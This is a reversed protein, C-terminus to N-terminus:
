KMSHLGVTNGETDEIVAIFGPKGISYKEQVIKGGAKKV